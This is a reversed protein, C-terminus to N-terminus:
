LSIYKRIKPGLWDTGSRPLRQWVNEAFKKGPSVIASFGEKNSTQNRKAKAPVRNEYWYLQQPEAGWQKKFRYTGEGPTSRGFDFQRYGHDAAFTLFTWYLLMNPSM